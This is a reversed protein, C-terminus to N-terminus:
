EYGRGGSSTETWVLSLFASLALRYLTPAHNTMLRRSGPIQLNGEDVPNGHLFDNRCNYIQEYLWCAINKRLRNGREHVTFEQAGCTEDIWPIRELLEFVRPKNAPDSGEPHVLIEFAAVWLATVRGYDYMVVDRGGPTLCAQNAMNLSRVLAVNEWSPERSEYMVEWRRLLEQLLPEDLRNRELATPMLEPSSQGHLADVNHVGGIAPTLAVIFQYDRDVMWPYVSFFNSYGVLGLSYENVIELANAKPVAAAVAIDRFSGLADSSSFETPTEERQIILAPEIANGHSDSFRGMYIRFNPHREVLEEVRADSPPVLATWRGEVPGDLTINPLAWVPMWSVTRAGHLRRSQHSRTEVATGCTGTRPTRGPSQPSGMGDLNPIRLQRSGPWKIRVGTNNGLVYKSCAPEPVPSNGGRM